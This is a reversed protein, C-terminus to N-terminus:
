GQMRPGFMWLNESKSFTVRLYTKAWVARLSTLPMILNKSPLLLLPCWGQRCYSYPPRSKSCSCSTTFCSCWTSNWCSSGQGWVEKVHPNKGLRKKLQSKLYKGKTAMNDLFGPAQVTYVCMHGSCVADCVKPSFFQWTSISFHQNLSELLTPVGLKPSQLPPTKVKALLCNYLFSSRQWVKSLM